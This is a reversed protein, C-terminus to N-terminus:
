KIREELVVTITDGAEKGIQNRTETKFSLKHTGDGLAMFSSQFPHGDVKGRVKVLGRAGFFSVSEPWVVYTWGGKAPSKQLTATFEKNLQEM